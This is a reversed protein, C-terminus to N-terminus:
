LSIWGNKLIHVPPKTKKPRFPLSCGDSTRSFVDINHWSMSVPEAIVSMDKAGNDLIPKSSIPQVDSGTLGPLLSVTTLVPYSIFDHEYSIYSPNDTGTLIHKSM